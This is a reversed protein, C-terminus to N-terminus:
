IGKTTALEMKNEPRREAVTEAQRERTITLPESGEGVKLRVYYARAKVRGSLSVRRSRRPDSWGRAYGVVVDNQPREEPPRSRRSMPTGLEYEIEDWEASFTEGWPDEYAMEGLVEMPDRATDALQHLHYGKIRVTSGDETEFYHFGDALTDHRVLTIDFQDALAEKLFTIGRRVEEVDEPLQFGAVESHPYADLDFGDPRGLDVASFVFAGQENQVIFPRKGCGIVAMESSSFAGGGTAARVATELRRSHAGVGFSGNAATVGGLYTEAEDDFRSYYPPIDIERDRYEELYGELGGVVYGFENARISRGDGVTVYGPEGRSTVDPMVVSLGDAFTTPEEQWAFERDPLDDRDVGPTLDAFDGFESQVSM